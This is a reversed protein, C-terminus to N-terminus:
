NLPMKTGKIQEDFKGELYDCNAHPFCQDVSDVPDLIHTGDSLRTGNPRTIKLQEDRRFKEIEDRSKPM